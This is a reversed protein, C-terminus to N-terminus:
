KNNIVSLTNRLHRPQISPSSPSQPRDGEPNLLVPWNENDDDYYWWWLLHPGKQWMERLILSLNGARTIKYAKHWLIVSVIKRSSFFEHKVGQVLPRFSQLFGNYGLFHFNDYPHTQYSLHLTKICQNCDLFGLERHPGM